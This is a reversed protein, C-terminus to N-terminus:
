SLFIERYEPPIQIKNSEGFDLGYQWLIDDIKRSWIVTAEKRLDEKSILPADMIITINQNLELTTESLVAAGRAGLDRLISPYRTGLSSVLLCPRNLKFRSYSRRYTQM